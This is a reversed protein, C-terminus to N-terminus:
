LLGGAPATWGDPPAGCKDDTDSGYVAKLTSARVDDFPEPCSRAFEVYFRPLLFRRYDMHLEEGSHIDTTAVACYTREPENKTPSIRTQPLVRLNLASPPASDPDAHNVTWTCVNLCCVEGDFGYVFHQFVKLIEERCYGGEQQALSIYKELDEVSAFTITGDSPLSVLSEISAMPLLVKEVAVDGANLSANAAAYRGNGAAKVNSESVTTNLRWGQEGSSVCGLRSKEPPLLFGCRRDGSAKQALAALEAQYGAVPSTRTAEVSCM